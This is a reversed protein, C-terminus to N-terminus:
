WFDDRLFSAVRWRRRCSKVPHGLDALSTVGLHSASVGCPVIGSFHSLDPDVNIAIGHFSVWRRLRIGIAAIKDEAVEGDLGRPKDPARGLRRRPGRADRGQYQVGCADRHDMIGLAGVLARVDQRRRTLDLMVYAVRQGPGHYTFQGGRGARHVPFRANLLDGDKASTGGTYLPPHELLFVAEASKGAAIAEVRAEMAAVTEEYPSLREFIQWAVPPSPRVPLMSLSPGNRHIADIEPDGSIDDNRRRM